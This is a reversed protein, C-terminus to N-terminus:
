LRYQPSRWAHLYRHPSISPPKGHKNRFIDPADLLPNRAQLAAGRVTEEREARAVSDKRRRRWLLTAYVLAGALAVVGVIDILAWLWGSPDTM